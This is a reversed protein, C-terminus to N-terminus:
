ILKIQFLFLDSVIGCKGKLFNSNKLNIISVKPFVSDILDEPLNAYDGVLPGAEMIEESGHFKPSTTKKTSSAKSASEYFRQVGLKSRSLIKRLVVRLWSGFQFRHGNQECCNSGHIIKSCTFCIKPFKEFSLPIWCKTKKMTIFRGRPISKLLDIEILVRLLEGWGTGDEGVDCGLM